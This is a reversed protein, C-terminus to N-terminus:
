FSDAERNESCVSLYFHALTTHLYPIIWFFGIGLSAIGLLLYGAFSLILGALSLKRGRMMERSKRMLGRASSATDDYYLYFIFTYNANVVYLLLALLLFFLTLLLFSVAPAAPVAPRPWVSVGPFFFLAGPIMAACVGARPMVFALILFAPMLIVLNILALMLTLLIVKDPYLRFASFLNGSSVTRDRTLNLYILSMGAELIETFVALVLSILSSIIRNDSGVFLWSATQTIVTMLLLAGIVTSYHGMLSLRARTKLERYSINM